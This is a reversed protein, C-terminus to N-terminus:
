CDPAPDATALGPSPASGQGASSSRLMGLVSRMRFVLLGVVLITAAGSAFLAILDGSVVDAAGAAALGALAAGAAPLCLRRSLDLLRIGVNRLSGLYWPLIGFAAVAAEAMAAGDIGDAHAGAILAPILALLWGLQVILLFRSRALVMLYDYALLFFIQVAGLLALWILPRAAPLWHAGYFLGILPNAAGGILLCVPLAVSALLGAVSLFTSRMASSDNQLRSFVAPAVTGVPQSFVNIPWGALNLALVYFGLMEAGLLHGVVIQDVSSVAFAVLNAGALPMGFRLLARAQTKDFGLHLSEPAFIVLLIVSALCGVVRGIALSMAGRGLLALVITVGTGLWSNVQDAIAKRGQQFSRQLLAVPTNAFGDVLVAIALVRVVPTAAPTGMASTYVPACLYCGIFILVSSFVSITTVTPIIPGPDGNWRVIASSVGLENFTLLAILAVYAVAYTGFEQPGLLRALM